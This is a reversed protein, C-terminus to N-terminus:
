RPWAEDRVAFKLYWNMDSIDENEETRITPTSGSERCSLVEYYPSIEATFQRNFDYLVVRIKQRYLSHQNATRIRDTVVQIRLSSEWIQDRVEGDPTKVFHSIAGGLVLQIAVYPKTVTDADIQRYCRLAAAELLKRVSIELNSEFDYIQEYSAATM